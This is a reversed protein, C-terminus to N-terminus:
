ACFSKHFDRVCTRVVYRGGVTGSLMYLYSIMRIKELFLFIGRSLLTRSDMVHSMSLASSLTAYWIDISNLRNARRVIHCFWHASIRVDDFLFCACNRDTELLDWKIWYLSGHFANHQHRGRVFHLLYDNKPVYFVRRRVGLFSWRYKLAYLTWNMRWFRFEFICSYKVNSNQEAVTSSEKCQLVKRCDAHTKKKAHALTLADEGWVQATVSKHYMFIVESLFIMWKAMACLEFAFNNLFTCASCTYCFYVVIVCM